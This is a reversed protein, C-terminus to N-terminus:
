SKHETADAVLDRVSQSNAPLKGEAALQQKWELRMAEAMGEDEMGKIGMADTNKCVKVREFEPLDAANQQSASWIDRLVTLAENGQEESM